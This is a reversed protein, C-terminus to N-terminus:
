KKFEIYTLDSELFRAISYILDSLRNIYKLVTESVDEKSKLTLMRREARRCITRAVHLHGSVLNSGPLIFCNEQDMIKTFHDIQKELFRIDDETVRSKFQSYDSTALEGAVDFLSRQLKAILTKIEDEEIYNKALGLSSNLEDITGYSEVRIYDKAVRTGDYLSTTGKDGTKTYVKMPMEKTNINYWNLICIFM